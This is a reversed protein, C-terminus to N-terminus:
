PQSRQVAKRRERIKERLYRDLALDEAKTFLLSSAKYDRQRWRLEALHLLLEPETPSLRSAKELYFAARKLDGQRFFFWGYSDLIFASDPSLDLARRLLDKARGRASQVEILTYGM